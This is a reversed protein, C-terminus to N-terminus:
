GALREIAARLDVRAVHAYRETTTLHAHGALAQVTAAPTGGRFLQTVFFHRLDHFRWGKLEARRCARVFAQRLGYKRKDMM